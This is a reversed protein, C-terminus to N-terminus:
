GNDVVKRGNEDWKRGWNIRMKKEVEKGLNVGTMEAIGMLYIAVDALESPFNDLDKHYWAEFAESVEGHLLALETNLNDSSTNFNNYKKFQIIEKQTELTDLM